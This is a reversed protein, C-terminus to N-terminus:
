EDTVNQQLYEVLRSIEDQDARRMAIILDRITIIGHVTNNSVVPLHRIKRDIMLDMVVNIDDNPDVVALDSSMVQAVTIKNFDARENCQNLIDRETVIGQPKGSEDMVLLAGVKKECALRVFESLTTNHKITFLTHAVHKSDLIKQVNM